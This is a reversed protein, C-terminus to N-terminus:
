ASSAGGSGRRRKEHRYYAAHRKAWHLADSRECVTGASRTCHIMRGRPLVLAVHSEFRSVKFLSVDGYEPRDTEIWFRKQTDVLESLEAFSAKDDYDASLSAIDIAFLHRYAIFVLGWCDWGDWGRGGPVFPVDLARKVFADLITM